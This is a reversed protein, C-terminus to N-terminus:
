IHSNMVWFYNKYRKESSSVLTSITRFAIWASLEKKILLFVKHDHWRLRGNTFTNCRKFSLITRHNVARAIDSFQFFLLIEGMQEFQALNEIPLRLYANLPQTPFYLVHGLLANLKTKIVLALLAIFVNDSSSSREWQLESM